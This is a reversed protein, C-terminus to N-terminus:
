KFEHYLYYSDQNKEYKDIDIANPIVMIKKDRIGVKKHYYDKVAESVAIIKDTRYSLIKDILRHWWKKWIDVNQATSIVIPVRCIFAALRGLVDATWLHTNVITYNGEHVIKILRIFARLDFGSNKNLEFIKIGQGEVVSAWEGKWNLCCLTPEIKDLDINELLSALFREAGGKELSWIIFLVKIM